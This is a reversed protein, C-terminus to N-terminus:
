RRPASEASVPEFREFSVRQFDHTEERVETVILKVSGAHLPVEFRTGRSALGAPLLMEGYSLPPEGLDVVIGRQFHELFNRERMKEQSWVSDRSPNDMHFWMLRPKRGMLAIGLRLKELDDGHKEDNVRKVVGVVWENGPQVCAAVLAGVRAWRGEGLDVAVGMGATSADLTEGHIVRAAKVSAAQAKREADSMQIRLGSNGVRGRPDAMLRDGQDLATIVKVADEYGQHVLVASKLPIRQGGRQPAQAGWATMLKEILARRERVTFMESFAPDPDAPDVDMHRELLTQLRPMTNSMDIYLASAPLASRTHALSRARQSGEPMVAHLAGPLRESELQVSASIRGIIRFMLEFERGLFRDPRALDGLLPRVYEQKVSSPRVNTPFVKNAVRFVGHEESLHYIEHLEAWREDLGPLRLMRSFQMMRTHWRARRLLLMALNDRVWRSKLGEPTLCLRYGKAFEGASERFAHLIGPAGDRGESPRGAATLFELGLPRWFPHAAVDIEMLVRGRMEPTFTGEGNMSVAWHTLEALAKAPDYSPLAELMKRAEAEDSIPHDARGRKDFALGRFLALDFAM